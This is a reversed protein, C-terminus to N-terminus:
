SVGAHVTSGSANGESILLKLRSLHALAKNISDGGPQLKGEELYGDTSNDSSDNNFGDLDIVDEQSLEHVEHVIVTYVWGLLDASGVTSMLSKKTRQVRQNDGSSLHISLFMLIHGLSHEVWFQFTSGGQRLRRAEELRVQGFDDVRLSRSLQM